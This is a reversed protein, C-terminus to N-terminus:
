CLMALFFPLDKVINVVLGLPPFPIQAPMPTVLTTPVMQIFDNMEIFFGGKRINESVTGFSISQGTIVVSNKTAAVFNSRNGALIASNQTVQLGAEADDVAKWIKIKCKVDTEDPM